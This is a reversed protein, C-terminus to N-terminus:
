DQPRQPRARPGGPALPPIPLRAPNLNWHRRVYPNLDGRAYLQCCGKVQGLQLATGNRRSDTASGLTYRQAWPQQTLLVLADFLPRRLVSGLVVARIRQDMRDADAIAALDTRGVPDAAEAYEDLRELIETLGEAELQAIAQEAAGYVPSTPECTW